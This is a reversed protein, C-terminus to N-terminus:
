QIKDKEFVKKEFNDDVELCYCATDLFWDCM